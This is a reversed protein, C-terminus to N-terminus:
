VRPAAHLEALNRYYEGLKAVRIRVAIVASAVM